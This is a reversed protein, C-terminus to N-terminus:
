RDSARVRIARGRDKPALFYSGMMGSKLEAEFPTDPLGVVRQSDTQV